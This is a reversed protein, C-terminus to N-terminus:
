CKFGTVGVVAGQSPLHTDFQLCPYNVRFEVRCIHWKLVTFYRNNPQCNSYNLQFVLHLDMHSKHLDGDLRLSSFTLTPCFCDAILVSSHTESSTGPPLQLFPGFNSM